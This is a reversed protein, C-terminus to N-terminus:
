SVFQLAKSQMDLDLLAIFESIADNRTQKKCADLIFLILDLCEKRPLGNTTPILQSFEKIRDLFVGQNSSNLYQTAIGSLAKVRLGPDSILTALELLRSIPTMPQKILAQIIKELAESKSYSKPITMAVECAQDVLFLEVLAQSIYSLNANRCDENKIAQAAQKAEDIWKHYTAATVIATLTEGQTSDDSLIQALQTAKAIYPRHKSNFKSSIGLVKQIILAQASQFRLSEAIQFVKELPLFTLISNVLEILGAEQQSPDPILELIDLAEEILNQQVLSIALIKFLKSKDFLNTCDEICQWAEELKGEKVHSDIIKSLTDIAFNSLAERKSVPMSQIIKHATKMKQSRVYEEVTVQSFVERIKNQTQDLATLYVPRSPINLFDLNAQSLAGFSLLAQKLIKKHEKLTEMVNFAIFNASIYNIDITSIFFVLAPMSQPSHSSLNQLKDKLHNIGENRSAYTYFFPLTSIFHYTNYIEFSIPSFNKLYDLNNRDQSSPPDDYVPLRLRIFLSHLLLIRREQCSMGLPDQGGYTWLDQFDKSTLLTKLCKKNSLDDNNIKDLITGLRNQFFKVKEQSHIKHWSKCVLSFNFSDQISLEAFVENQMSANIETWNLIRERVIKQIRALREAYGGHGWEAPPVFEIEKQKIWSITGWLRLYVTKQQNIELKVALGLTHLIRGVWEWHVTINNPSDVSNLIFSYNHIHADIRPIQM